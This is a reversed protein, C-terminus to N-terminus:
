RKGGGNPPNSTTPDDTTYRGTKPDEKKSDLFDRLDQMFDSISSKNEQELEKNIEELEEGHRAAIRTRSTTRNRLNIEDAQADHLPDVSEPKPYKWVRDIRYPQGDVADYASAIAPSLSACYGILRDLVIDLVTQTLRNQLTEIHQWYTQKEGRWSSYNYDSCDEKLYAAPTGIGAGVKQLNKDVFDSYTRTPYEAELQKFETGDPTTLVEGAKMNLAHAAPEGFGAGDDEDEYEDGAATGTQLWGSIRAAMEAADLTYNNWRRMAAVHELVCQIMPLGRTQEVLDLEALHIVDEAPVPEPPETVGSGIYSPNPYTKKIYYTTPHGFIDYQIGDLRYPDLVGAQGEDTVRDASIEQLSFGGAPIWPDYVFRLFIEGDYVLAKCAHRLTEVFQTQQCWWFWYWEIADKAEQTIRDDTRISLQPGVTGVVHTALIRGANRIYGNNLYEYRARQRCIRRQDESTVEDVSSEGAAAWHNVNRSTTATSDLASSRVREPRKPRTRDRRKIDSEATTETVTQLNVGCLIPPPFLSKLDNM